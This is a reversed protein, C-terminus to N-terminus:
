SDGRGKLPRPGVQESPDLIMPEQSLFRRELQREAEEMREPPGDFVCEACVDRGSPGYPRLERRGPGGVRLCCMCYRSCKVEETGDRQDYDSSGCAYRTRPSEEPVEPAGCKPCNQCEFEKVEM